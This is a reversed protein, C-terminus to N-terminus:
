KVTVKVKKAYGNRAYVYVTCTGAAVGKINGKTDVTAISKDSTAYRFQSAHANSLQMKGKEVLVTKAKIKATKGAKITYKSKSVTVKKVNTYKTNKRGVIHGTITKALMVKNGDVLKYATVYLKFNKKLDIKKGNIKTIKASVTNNGKIDKAARGFKKGCYTVYLEYGDAEAVRGWKVSIKSGKQDIKLGANMAIEAKDNASEDPIAVTVTVTAAMKGDETTVTITATGNGVATVRGNEDVTAVNPDSTTFTVKRNDADAPSVVVSIQATEGVSTLTNKDVSATVGSVATGWLGYLKMDDTVVDKDPDWPRTGEADSFWGKFNCGEKTLNDPLVIKNGESVVQTVTEGTGYDISIYHTKVTAYVLAFDSFYQSYLIVNGGSVYYTADKYDSAPRSDLREFAM